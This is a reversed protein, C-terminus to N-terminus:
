VSQKDLTSEVIIKRFEKLEAFIGMGWWGILDYM